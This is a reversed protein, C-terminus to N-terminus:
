FSVSGLVWNLQESNLGSNRLGWYTGGGLNKGYAALEIDRTIGLFDLCDQDPVETAKRYSNSGITVNSYTISDTCQNSLINSLFNDMDPASKIEVSFVDIDGVGFAIEDDGSFDREEYIMDKPYKLSFSYEANTYTLWLAIMDNPDEAPPNNTNPEPTNNNADQSSDSDQDTDQDSDTLASDNDEESDQDDLIEEQSSDSDSDEDSTKFIDTTFYIVALTASIVLLLVLAGIIMWLVSSNKSKVPSTVTTTTTTTKKEQPEETTSKESTATTETAQTPTSEILTEKNSM